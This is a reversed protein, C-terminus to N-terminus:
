LGLSIVGMVKANPLTPPAGATTGIMMAAAQLVSATRQATNMSMELATEQTATLPFGRARCTTLDELTLRVATARPAHSMPPALLTERVLRHAIWVALPRLQAGAITLFPIAVTLQASAIQLVPNMSMEPEMELTAIELSGHAPRIPLGPHTLKM